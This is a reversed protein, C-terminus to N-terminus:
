VWAKRFELKFSIYKSSSKVGLLATLNLACLINFSFSKHVWFLGFFNLTSRHICECQWVGYQHESLTHITWLVNSIAAPSLLSRAVHKQMLCWWTYISSDSLPLRYHKSPRYCNPLTLTSALILIRQSALMSRATAAFKLLSSLSSSNLFGPM